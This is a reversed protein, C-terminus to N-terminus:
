RYQVGVQLARSLRCGANGIDIGAAVFPLLRGVEHQEAGELQEVHMQKKNGADALWVIRARVLAHNPAIVGILDCRAYIGKEVVLDEVREDGRARDPHANILEVAVIEIVPRMAENSDAIQDR